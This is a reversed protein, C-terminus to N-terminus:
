WDEEPRMVISLVYVAVVFIGLPIGFLSLAADDFRILAPLLDISVLYLILSTVFVCSFLLGSLPAGYVMHAGGAMMLGLVRRLRRLRAQRRHERIQKRIQASREVPELHDSARSRVFGKARSRDEARELTQRAFLTIFALVLGVLGLLACHLREYPSFKSWFSDAVNDDVQLNWAGAHLLKGEIPEDAVFFMDAAQAQESLRTVMGLDIDSAAEHAEGALAHDAMKYLVRSKNFLATVRSGDLALAKDYAEVARTKQGDRFRLNGLATYVEAGAGPMLAASEMTKLAKDTDGRWYHRMGRLFIIRPGPDEIQDLRKDLTESGMDRGSLYVLESQSGPYKLHGLAFPLTLPLLTMWILVLVTALRETQHMWFGSFTLWWVLALSVGFGFLIPTTLILIVVLGAQFSPTGRPLRDLVATHMRSSSRLAMIFGFLLSACLVSLWLAFMLQGGRVRRHAPESISLYLSRGLAKIGDLRHEPGLILVKGGMAQVGPHQPALALAAKAREYATAYSGEAQAKVAERALVQGYQFLNPWGAADKKHQLQSLLRYEQSKDGRQMALGRQAWIQKFGSTDLGESAFGEEPEPLKEEIDEYTLIGTGPVATATGLNAPTTQGQYRTPPEAAPKSQAHASQVGLFCLFLCSLLSTWTASSEVINNSVAGSAM